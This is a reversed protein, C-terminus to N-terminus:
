SRLVQDLGRRPSPRAEHQGHGIRFVFTPRWAPDDAPDAIRAATLAPLGLEAERHVREPIQNLPQAALGRATAWLHIRQWVRGAALTTPRDYLDRASILGLVPASAVHVERTADLWQRDASAPSPVPLVRAAAAVRLILGRRTMTAKM